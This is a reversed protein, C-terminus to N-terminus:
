GRAFVLRSLTYNVAFAVVTSACKAVVLPVFLSGIGVTATSAVLGVVYGGVFRVYNRPTRLAQLPVRFTWLGNLVYSMQIAVLWGLVNAVAPQCGLGRALAFFVAFDVATVIIGIAAFRCLPLWPQLRSRLSLLASSM